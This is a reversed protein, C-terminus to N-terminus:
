FLFPCLNGVLLHSGAKFPLHHKQGPRIDAGEMGETLPKDTLMDFRNIYVGLETQGTLLFQHQEFVVSQFGQQFFFVLARYFRIFHRLPLIENGKHVIVAVFFAIFFDLCGHQLQMIKGLALGERFFPQHALLFFIPSVKGMREPKRRSHRFHPRAQHRNDALVFLRGGQSFSSIVRRQSGCPQRVAFQHLLIQCAKVGDTLGKVHEFCIRVPLLPIFQGPLDALKGPNGHPPFDIVVELREIGIDTLLKVAPPIRHFLRQLLKSIIVQTLLRRLNFFVNRGILPRSCNIGLQGYIKSPRQLCGLLLAVNQIEVIQLMKRQFYETGIILVTRHHCARHGEGQLFLVFGDHHILILVGVTHLFSDQIQNGPLVVAKGNPIHLLANVAEAQGVRIEKLGFVVAEGFFGRCVIFILEDVHLLVEAAATFHQRGYVEDKVLNHGSARRINFVIRVTLEVGALLIRGM